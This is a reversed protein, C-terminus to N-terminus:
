SIKELQNIFQDESVGPLLHVNGPILKRRRTVDLRLRLRANERRLDSVERASTHSYQLSFAIDLLEGPHLGRHRTSQAHIGVLGHPTIQWGDWEPASIFGALYLVALWVVRPPQNSTVYRHLTRPHIGLQSPINGLDPFQERLFQSFDRGNTPDINLTDM